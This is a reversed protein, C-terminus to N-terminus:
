TTRMTTRPVSHESWVAKWWRATRSAKQTHGANMSRPFANGIQPVILALDKM